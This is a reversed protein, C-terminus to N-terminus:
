SISPLISLLKIISNGGLNTANQRPIDILNIIRRIIYLVSKALSNIVPYIYIFTGM